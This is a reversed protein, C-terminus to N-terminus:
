FTEPFDVLAQGALLCTMTIYIWTESTALASPRITIV